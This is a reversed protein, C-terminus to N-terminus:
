NSHVFSRYGKFWDQFRVWFWHDALCYIEGTDVDGVNAASKNESLSQRQSRFLNRTSLCLCILLSGSCVNKPVPVHFAANFQDSTKQLFFAILQVCAVHPDHVAFRIVRIAIGSLTPTCFPCSVTRDEQGIAWNSLINRKFESLRWSCTLM